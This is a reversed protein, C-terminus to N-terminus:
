FSRHRLQHWTTDAVGKGQDVDSAHLSPFQHLPLMLREKVCQGPKRRPPSEGAQKKAEGYASFASTVSLFGDLQNVYPQCAKSEVSVKKFILTRPVFISTFCVMFRADLSFFCVFWSCFGAKNGGRGLKLSATKM